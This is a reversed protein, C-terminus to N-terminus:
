LWEADRTFDSDQHASFSNCNCLVGLLHCWYIGCLTPTSIISHNPTHPTACVPQYLFPKILSNLVNTFYRVDAKHTSRCVLSFSFM